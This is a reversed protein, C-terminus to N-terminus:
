KNAAKLAETFAPLDEFIWTPQIQSMALDQESAIGSLMLITHLGARQGGLIDTDLRDGVSAVQNTPLGLRELALDFIPREPKGMIIPKTDSSVSLATVMMGSGPVFGEETPYSPDANTGLFTAGSRILLAGRKITEYTLGRELAAVVVEVKEDALEYGAAEVRDKLAPEGIVHVRTGKPFHKQLYHGTAVLSSIIDKPDIKIGFAHAKEAFGEPQKSPNNTAMVYRIGKENLLDFFPLLGEMPDDGHWLVGDMDLILGRIASLSATGTSALDSIPLTATHEADALRLGVAGGPHFKGFEQDPLGRAELLGACLVDGIAAHVITSALPIVGCADNEPSVQGLLIVDCYSSMTSPAFEMIGIIRAGRQSAVQLAHNVEATEGGRSFAIMLDGASILQSYGHQAQGPDLFVARGGSCTLVHALRRAISSSTGAGVVLINGSTNLILELAAELAAYDLQNSLEQLAGIEQALLKKALSKIDIDKKNLNDEKQTAHPDLILKM